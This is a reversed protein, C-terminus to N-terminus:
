PIVDDLGQNSKGDVASNQCINWGLQSPSERTL